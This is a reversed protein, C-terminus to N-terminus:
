PKLTSDASIVRYFTEGPRVMGLDERALDEVSLLGQRLDNLEDSLAQNRLTLAQSRERAKEVQASVAEYQRVGNRGYYTDYGLYVLACILLLSVIKM